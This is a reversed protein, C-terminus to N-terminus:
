PKPANTCGLLECLKKDLESGRLDKAIIKGTPDILFNGPISQIHYLQAVANNWYQLDSVHNWTLKDNAIAKLWADKSQDLSVSLVTFNKNKFKNYAKVVNPNEARCPKCWSAWFDLLVYKGKFSSLSVPKGATDNQTFDLATSGVAGVKAFAINNAINKGIESNKIEDSLMNFRQEMELPDPAVQGSISLLFASVFSSRKAAVFNGIEADVKKAVSDYKTFLEEKKKEDNEKQILAAFGNLEAIMPNFIKNFEVFDKHSQSGEIRINKIDAQSGTITIPNNELFIYQPQENSLILYYLGPEPISGQLHFVGNKSSDTAVAQHDEAMTVIQVKGDALGAINGNVTFGKQAFLVAPFFSLLLFVQKM